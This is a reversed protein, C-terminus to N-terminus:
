QARPGPRFRASVPEKAPDVWNFMEYPGTVDVLNIGDYVPMGLKM